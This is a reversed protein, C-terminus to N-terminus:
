TALWAALGLFLGQSLTTALTTLLISAALAPDAGIRRLALPIVVGMLGSLACSLGMSLLMALGLHLPSGTGSTAQWGIILASVLGVLLGNLLGLGTEKFLVRLVTGPHWEGTSLGRLTIAMTQAGTNRAQSTVVPFFVALIVLKGIVGQFYGIVLCSLLTLVLNLQLWPQRFRVSDWWHTSLREQARVGVMAGAQASIVFSQREFLAQGRVIGLMRGEEDCVPYVPYHRSVVARMAELLPMEPRLSFAPTIMIDALTKEPPNLFLDKLVVIGQLKGARDTAYLYTIPERSSLRKLEEIAMRLPMHVPLVGVSPRMLSGISNEPYAVNRLWQTRYSWPAADLVRTRTSEPLGEILPRAQAQALHVLLDAAVDAPQASLFAIGEAPALGALHSLLEDFNAPRIGAPDVTSPSTITM